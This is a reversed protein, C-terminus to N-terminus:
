EDDDPIAEGTAACWPCPGDPLGSNDHTWGTGGCKDCKM